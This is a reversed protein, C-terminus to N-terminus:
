VLGLRSCLSTMPVLQGKSERVLLPSDVTIKEQRKLRLKVIVKLWLVFSMKKYGPGAIVEHAVRHRQHKSYCLRVRIVEDMPLSGAWSAINHDM